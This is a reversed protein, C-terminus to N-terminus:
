EITDIRGDIPYWVYGQVPNYGMRRLLDMYTKLQKHYQWRLKGFKYDLVEASGDPYIMVRDPRKSGEIGGGVIPLERLVLASGDFWHRQELSSLWQELDRAYPERHEARMLGLGEAQLLAQPIDQATEIESLVYHMLSGYLRPNTQDFYRLGERLIEIRNGIPYAHIQNLPVFDDDKQEAENTSHSVPADLVDLGDGLLRESCPLHEALAEELLTLITLPAGESDRLLRKLKKVNSTEADPLWLHLETKARTTAVYFLNLADLAMNVAETLYEKAFHTRMLSKRFQIPVYEPTEQDFHLPMPCWLIPQKSPIRAMLEWTPFPLLVVPFGLGKSKHVTMLRIKREDEPVTLTYQEGRRAWMKLFDAVDASLDQQFNLAIDLLKIQHIIEGSDLRDQYITLIAEIMEYLNKHRAEQIAALIPPNIRRNDGNEPYLQHHLEEWLLLADKSNPESIYGLVAIVLRVSLANSLLLAEASLLDLSYRGDELLDQNAADELLEAIMTAERQNRVLIAIDSPKYGRKQLDILVEPIQYELLYEDAFTEVEDASATDYVASVDGTEAEELEERGLLTYRHLAVLGKRGARVSPVTQELDAYYDVFLNALPRTKELNITANQEAAEDILHGYHESLQRALSAFLRNNFEVVEPTSRWNETLAIKKAQEFDDFVRKGLLSSDSNRFRYISQKVDGVVLNDHGSALSDQLLPVFNEYQLLSTDQFEDIMQHEIRAGIKEYIFNVGSRDSLIRHIFAPADMLLMANDERQQEKLKRDVEAILGYSNLLEQMCYISRLEPYVKAISDHYLVFLGRLEEDTELRARMPRLNANSKAILSAPNDLADRFRKPTADFGDDAILTNLKQKYELIKLFPALGGSKKNSLDDVSLGLSHIHELVAEAVQVLAQELEDGRRALLRKFRKLMERSPLLDNTSLRKVDERKLERALRSIAATLNHGKGQLILDRALQIIWQQVDDRADLTDQEALVAVVAEDLAQDAELSLRFGGSLNLERAFARLVEQFFADITKIRFSGYDLLLGRLCSAARERLESPSYHLDACLEDFFSSQREQADLAQTAIAHLERLIREKMEETAKNTFTVAQISRFDKQLALQLYERTLSHTKGAGASAVYVKLQSM